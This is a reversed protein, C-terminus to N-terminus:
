RRFGFEMLLEAHQQQNIWLVIIALIAVAMSTRRWRVTAALWRGSTWAIVARVFLFGAAAALAFSAPNYLWATAADGMALATVARTMGCLPDMVGIHHLPSHIDVPPFGFLALASAGISGLVAAITLQRHPDSDKWYFHIPPEIRPNPTM